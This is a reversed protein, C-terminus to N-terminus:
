PVQIQCTAGRSGADETGPAGYAWTAGITITGPRGATFTPPRSPILSGDEPGVSYTLRMPAILAEGGAGHGIPTLTVTQGVAMNTPCNLAFSAPYYDSYVRISDKGGRSDVLYTSGQSQAAFSVSVDRTGPAVAGRTIIGPDRSTIWGDIDSPSPVSYNVVTHSTDHMSAVVQRANRGIYAVCDRACAVFTVGAPRQRFVIDKHAEHPGALVGFRVVAIGDTGGPFVPGVKHKGPSLIQLWSYTMQRSKPDPYGWTLEPNNWPPDSAISLSFVENASIVTDPGVVSVAIETNPDYPNTHAFDTCALACMAALTLAIAPRKM